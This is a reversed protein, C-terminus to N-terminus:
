SGTILIIRKGCCDGSPSNEPRHVFGRESMKMKVGFVTEEVAGAANGREAFM